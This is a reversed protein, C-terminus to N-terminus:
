NAIWCSSNISSLTDQSWSEHSLDLINNYHMGQGMATYPQRFLHESDQFGNTTQM